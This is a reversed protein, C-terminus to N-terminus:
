RILIVSGKQTQIKKNVGLAEMYWVYTGPIQQEGKFKGNWGKENEEYSFVQQGFRNYVKFLKITAGYCIPVFFENLNDGNPTFANPVFIKIADIVHVTQFDTVACGGATVINIKYLQDTAVPSLFNPNLIAANNLYLPPTWLQTGKFDRALLPLLDNKLIYEDPYTIGKLPIEIQIKEKRTNAVCGDNNSLKAFYEGDSLARYRIATATNIPTNDKYWQISTQPPRLVFVASDNSVSCFANKGIFQLTTDVLSKRIFVTDKSRCGGGGNRVSLIYQTSAPPDAVPNSTTADSLGLPPLWDYIFGPKPNVGIISNVGGCLLKDPGADARYSLTDILTAYLTDVCGYGNYPTVIVALSTGTPPPPQINLNQSNGLSTTFNNTYWNYAAFGSPGIVNIATDDTCYSAGPFEGNCETNVDIYAYGFHKNFTCDATKFSISITKGANGNLNITVPTWGKCLVSDTAPSVFFGPLSTGPIFTFSSCSIIEDDSANKVEIELRPQEYVQHNPNEFVVAYNYLLSYTNRNAPITFQYTIGEAQHGGSTNGLKVSFASGNPCNVPFGGYADTQGATTSRPLIEHRNPLPANSSNTLLISNTGGNAFVNGIKCTWGTFTGDEFDINPPCDQALVINVSFFIAAFLIVKKFFRNAKIVM